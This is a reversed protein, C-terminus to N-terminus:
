HSNHKIHTHFTIYNRLTVYNKHEFPLLLQDVQSLIKFNLFKRRFIADSKPSTESTM